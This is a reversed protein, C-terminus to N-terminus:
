IEELHLDGDDHYNDLYIIFFSETLINLKKSEMIFDALKMEVPTPDFYGKCLYLTNLRGPEFYYTYHTVANRIKTDLYEIFKNGPFEQKLKHVLTGLPKSDANRMGLEDFDIITVLHMKLRESMVQYSHCLLTGYQFPNIKLGDKELQEVRSEMKSLDGDFINSFSNCLNVPLNSTTVLNMLRNIQWDSFVVNLAGKKDIADLFELISPEYEILVKKEGKALKAKYQEIRKKMSDGFVLFNNSDL